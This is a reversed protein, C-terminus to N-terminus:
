SRSGPQEGQGRPFLAFLWILSPVLLVLGAAVSITTAQLTAQSAAAARVTLGPLLLHPYQAVGGGWLM